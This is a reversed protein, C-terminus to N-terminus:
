YFSCFSALKPEVYWDVPNRQACEMVSQYTLGDINKLETDAGRACLRRIAAMELNRAAKHLPTERLRADQANISADWDLLLNLGDIWGGAAALHLATIDELMLVNPDADNSLLLRTM